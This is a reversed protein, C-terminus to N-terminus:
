LFCLCLQDCVYFPSTHLEPNQMNHLHLGSTKLAPFTYLEATRKGKQARKEREQKNALITFIVQLKLYSIGMTDESESYM